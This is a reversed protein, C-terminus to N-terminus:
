QSDLFEDARKVVSRDNDFSIRKIAEEMPLWCFDKHEHSLVVRKSAIKGLFYVVVKHKKRGQWSYRYDITERFGDFVSIDKIGTEEQAERRATELENEEKEVGGKILGWHGHGYQLLLYERTGKEEVFVILGCSKQEDM